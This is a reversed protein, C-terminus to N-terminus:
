FRYNVSIDAVGNAKRHTVPSNGASGVLQEFAGDATAFWHKDFLWVASLGFGVAKVGASAHYQQYGSNVSQTHNVGYWSNMYTSDAIQMNPGAFWFFKKTSGPMPMYAGLDGIWGNSGGFYRRVDARLVLPFDQSIVYEGSLKVGPAANINGLGSLEQADDHARRGLDYVAALSARWNQGQAFNVGAGEGSSLFFLDKYRVDISPGGMVHYRDSGEYRPQFSAAAGFRVQWDPINPQWMKQLPIGVSYQWEGLPSPTQASATGPLGALTSVTVAVLSSAAISTHKNRITGIRKRRSNFM